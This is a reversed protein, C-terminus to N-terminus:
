RRAIITYIPRTRDGYQFTNWTLTSNKFGLIGLYEQVLLPPLRFWGDNIGEPALSRPM